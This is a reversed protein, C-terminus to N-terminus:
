GNGLSPPCILLGSEGFNSLFSFAAERLEFDLSQPYFFYLALHLFVSFYHAFRCILIFLKFRVCSCVCACAGPSSRFYPLDRVRIKFVPRPNRFRSSKWAYLFVRVRSCLYRYYQHTLKRLLIHYHLHSTAFSYIDNILLPSLCEMAIVNTSNEREILRDTEREIVRFLSNTELKKKCPSVTVQIAVNPVSEVGRGVLRSGTWWAVCCYM